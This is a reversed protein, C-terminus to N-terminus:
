QGAGRMYTLVSMQAPTLPSTPVYESVPVCDLVLPAPPQSYTCIDDGCLMLGSALLCTGVVNNHMALLALANM